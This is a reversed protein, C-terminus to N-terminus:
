ELAGMRSSLCACHCRYPRRGTSSLAWYGRSLCHSSSQTHMASPPSGAPLPRCVPSSSHLIPLPTHATHMCLAMLDRFAGNHRHMHGAPLRFKALTLEAQLCTMSEHFVGEGRECDVTTSAALRAASTRHCPCNDACVFFAHAIDYGAIYACGVQQVVYEKWAAAPVQQEAALAVLVSAAEASCCCTLALAAGPAPQRSHSDVEACSLGPLTHPRWDQRTNRVNQQSPPAPHSYAPARCLLCMM